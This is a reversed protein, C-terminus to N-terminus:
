WFQPQGGDSRGRGRGRGHGQGRGGSGEGGHSGGRFGGRGRGRGRGRGGDTGNDSGQGRWYGGGRWGRGRVYGRTPAEGQARSNVSPFTNVPGDIRSQAAYTGGVPTIIHSSIIPQDLVAVAIPVGELPLHGSGSPITGSGGAQEKARAELRLRRKEQKAKLKEEKEKPDPMPGPDYNPNQAQWPVASPLTFTSSYVAAGDLCDFSYYQAPTPNEMAALLELLHNYIALGAHADNAAYEQQKDSLLAEWNSRQIKGKGELTFGKYTELLRALGLPHSYKGKWNANDVSRALLALEVCSRVNIHYDRFLKKCDDLIAVGVKRQAPNELLTKLRQPFRQMASVQLLLTLTSSAIQVLAVPNQPADKVFVPKWELDFGVPEDAQIGSLVDDATIHDRIYFLRQAPSVTRWSYVPLDSPPKPVKKKRRSQQESASSAAIAAPPLRTAM